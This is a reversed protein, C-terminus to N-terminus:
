QSRKPPGAAEEPSTQLERQNTFVVDPLFWLVLTLVKGKSAGSGVSLFLM